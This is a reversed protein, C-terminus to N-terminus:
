ELKEGELNILTNLENIKCFYRYHEVATKEQESSRLLGVMDALIQNVVNAPCYKFATNGWRPMTNQGFYKWFLMQSEKPLFIRHQPHGKIIGDHVDEGFFDERVMFAGIIIRAQEDQGSPRTTLLCVSNPKMRDAVRPQGKSYGSLYTGTYVQCERITQDVRDPAVHFVAHSNATVNFNLMKRKRDQKAQEARREKQTAIERDAIEKEIRRQTKPDKLILFNQFADPYIFKKESDQFCITVTNEALGTVVGAGFIRHKIPQGILKM